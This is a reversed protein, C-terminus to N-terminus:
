QPWGELAQFGKIAKLAALQAVLTQTGGNPHTRM